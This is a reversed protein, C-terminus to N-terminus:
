RSRANPAARAAPGSNARTFMRLWQSTPSRSPVRSRSGARTHSPNHNTNSRQSPFPIGAPTAPSSIGIAARIRCAARSADANAAAPPESITTAIASRHAPSLRSGDIPANSHSCAPSSSSRTAPTSAQSLTTAASGRGRTNM